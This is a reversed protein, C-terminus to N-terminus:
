QERRSQELAAADPGNTKDDQSKQSKQPPAPPVTPPATKKSAPVGTTLPTVSARLAAQEEARKKARRTTRIVIFRTILALIALVPISSLFWVVFNVFGNGINELNRQFGKQIRTMVSDPAIPTFAKVEDIYLYVTSYDVQNDYTRLQSEFSELQYRIESLRSELAIISDVSDAKELLAWLREQEIALSKKRSEVDSYKLTVDQVNESRNTVNGQENVQAVFHDLQNSPIRVTLSAYRRNERGSSISNGSVNSQEIYGDLESVTTQIVNLLSDFETTEVNMDITRILKRSTAVPQISNQSTLRNDTTSEATDMEYEEVAIENKSVEGEMPAAAAPLAMAAAATEAVMDGAAAKSGNSGAGCGALILSAATLLPLATTLFHRKKM